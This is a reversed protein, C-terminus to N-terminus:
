QVILSSEHVLQFLILQTEQCFAPYKLILMIQLSLNEVQFAHKM